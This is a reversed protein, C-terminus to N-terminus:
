GKAKVAFVAILMAGAIAVMLIKDTLAGRGQSDAYANGLMDTASKVQSLAGNVLGISDTRSKSASDFLYGLSDSVVSDVLGLAQSRSTDASALSQGFLDSGFNLAKGTSGDYADSVYAMSDLGFGFADKAAARNADLSQAVLDSGFGFAGAVAKGQVQGALDLTSSAFDLTHSLGTGAFVLADSGFALANSSVSDAVRGAYMASEAAVSMANKVAGFDTVTSFNTTSSYENSNFTNRNNNGDLLMGAGNTKAQGSLQFTQSGNDLIKRDDTQASSTTSSKTSDGFLAGLLGM